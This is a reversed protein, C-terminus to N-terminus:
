LPHRVNRANREAIDRERAFMAGMGLIGYEKVKADLRAAEVDFESAIKERVEEEVLAFYGGDGILRALDEAWTDPKAAGAGYLYASIFKQLRDQLDSM